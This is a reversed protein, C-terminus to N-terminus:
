PRRETQHLQYEHLREALLKGAAVPDDTLCGNRMVVEPVKVLGLVQELIQQFSVWMPNLRAGM